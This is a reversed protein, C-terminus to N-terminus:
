ISEAERRTMWLGGLDHLEDFADLDSHGPGADDCPCHCWGDECRHKDLDNHRSDWCPLCVRIEIDSEAM